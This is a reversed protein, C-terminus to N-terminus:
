CILNLNGMTRTVIPFMSCDPGDLVFRRQIGLLLRGDFELALEDSALLASEPVQPNRAFAFLIGPHVHFANRPSPSRSEPSFTFLSESPFAFPNERQGPITKVILGSHNGCPAAASSVIGACHVRWPLILTGALLTDM